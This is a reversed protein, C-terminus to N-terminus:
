SSEIISTLQLQFREVALSLSTHADPLKLQNETVHIHSVTVQPQQLLVIFVGLLLQSDIAIQMM